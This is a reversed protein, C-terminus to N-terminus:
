RSVHRELADLRAELRARLAAFRAVEDRGVLPASPGRLREAAAEALRRGSVLGQRGAQGLGRALRHALVDGLRPALWAALDPRLHEILTALTEAFGAHGEIRAAHRLAEPGASLRGLAEAPVRISVDPRVTPATALLRGEASVTFRLPWGALELLATQGAHPRLLAGAWPEAALLRNLLALTLDAFM